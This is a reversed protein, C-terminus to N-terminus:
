KSALSTLDGVRKVGFRHHNPTYKGNTNNFEKIWKNIDMIDDLRNDVPANWPNDPFWTLKPPNMITAVVLESKTGPHCMTTRAGITNKLSMISDIITNKNGGKMLDNLGASLLIRM